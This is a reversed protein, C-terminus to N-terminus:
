NIYLIYLIPYMIVAPNDLVKALFRSSKKLCRWVYIERFDAYKRCEPTAFQNRDLFMLNSGPDVPPHPKLNQSGLYLIM